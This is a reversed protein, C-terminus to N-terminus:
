KPSATQMYIMLASVVLTLGWVAILKKIKSTVFKKTKEMPSHGNTGFIADFDSPSFFAAYQKRLDNYLETSRNMEDM